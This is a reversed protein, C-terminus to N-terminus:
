KAKKNITAYKCDTTASKNEVDVLQNDYAHTNIPRLPYGLETSLAYMYENNGNFM